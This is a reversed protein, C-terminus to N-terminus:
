ASGSSTSRRRTSAKPMRTAIYLGARSPRPWRLDPYLRGTEADYFDPIWKRYCSLTNAKKRYDYLVRVLEHSERHDLLTQDQLDSIEVGVLSLARLAGNRGKGDSTIEKSTNGWVWAEGEPQESAREDLRARLDEMESELSDLIVQLREANLPGGRRRGDGADSEHLRLVMAELEYARFVYYMKNQAFCLKRAYEIGALHRAKLEHIDAAANQKWGEELAQLDRNITALDYPKGSKENRVPEVHYTLAKGDEDVRDTVGNPLTDAIERQSMGRLSLAAVAARRRDVAATNYRGRAM